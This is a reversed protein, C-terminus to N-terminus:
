GGEKSPSIVVSLWRFYFESFANYNLSSSNSATVFNLAVASVSILDFDHL